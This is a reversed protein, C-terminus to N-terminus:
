RGQEKYAKDKELEKELVLYYCNKPDWECTGDNYFCDSCEIRFPKRTVKVKKKRAMM